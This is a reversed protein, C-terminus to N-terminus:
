EEQRRLQYGHADLQIFFQEWDLPGTVLRAKAGAPITDLATFETSIGLAGIEAPTPYRTSHVTRTM